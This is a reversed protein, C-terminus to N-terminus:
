SETSRNRKRSLDVDNPIESPHQFRRQLLPRIITMELEEQLLRLFFLIAMQMMGTHNTMRKRSSMRKRLSKNRDHERGNGDM